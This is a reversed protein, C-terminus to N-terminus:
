FDPLTLDVGAAKLAAQGVWPSEIFADVLGQEDLVREEDNLTRGVRRGMQEALRASWVFRGRADDYHIEVVQFELAKTRDQGPKVRRLTHVWGGKLKDLVPAFDGVQPTHVEDADPIRVESDLDDFFGM